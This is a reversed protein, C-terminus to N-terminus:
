SENAGGPDVRPTALLFVAIYAIHPHASLWQIVSSVLSAVM